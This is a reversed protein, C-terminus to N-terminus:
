GATILNDLVVVNMKDKLFTKNIQNFVEMFYRGLFGRGGTLLIRKGSFEHAIDDLNQVIQTIDKSLLFSTM